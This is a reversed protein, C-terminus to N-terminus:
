EPLGWRLMMQEALWHDMEDHIDIGTRVDDNIILEVKDGIRRGARVIEARTACAVGTDERYLLRRKPNQRSMYHAMEPLVRVWQDSDTDRVWFNKSTEHASFASDLEPNDRLLTVAKRIWSPSRFLDTPQQYVVIDYIRDFQRELEELVHVLVAENRADNTALAAPRMFPVWAGYARAVEAIDEADTSVIVDDCVGSNLCAEISYAILPKGAVPKINKGPLGKSGGRALIIAIVGRCNSEQSM